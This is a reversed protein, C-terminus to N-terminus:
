FGEKRWDFEVPKYEPDEIPTKFGFFFVMGCLVVNIGSLLIM